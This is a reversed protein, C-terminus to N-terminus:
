LLKRKSTQGGNFRTATTMIPITLNENDRTKTTESTTTSPSKLSEDTKLPTTASSSRKKVKPTAHTKAM